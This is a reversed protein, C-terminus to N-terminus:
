KNSRAGGDRSARANRNLRITQEEMAKGHASEDIVSSESILEFYARMIICDGIDPSRGIEEKVKDKPRLRKRGEGDPEDDRLLATVEEVIEERLDPVKFAIKHENILEAVKWGCQSKLNAYVTKPVLHHATNAQRERIQTKSPIPISNATFGKVGLLHDVVGGGVGDEDILIHSFPIRDKAAFDKIQQETKTTSQNKFTEVKYLELGDWFTIRITDRGYRAVDIIMYREGDKIITNTFADSLADYTVLSDQDDDYDWDGEYLRQRAVKNTIAALSEVYGEPLYTNDSAFAQIYKRSPALTGANYPDVFDRKLHGKKPNATLLMKKKLNKYKDNKWRGISLFLNSRAAEAIEGAEEIWGRTMQMSGFREFMPDSPEDKCAILFVQSGNYLKFVNDQGNYPAYKRIDIKWKQFVEHITPITFKRLDNLEKRAIFYHTEPYILADGMILSAGLYSKGGGKAGGYLVEQTEDDMWAKTALIQKDNKTKFNIDM